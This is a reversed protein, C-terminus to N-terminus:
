FGGSRLAKRIEEWDKVERAGEAETFSFARPRYERASVIVDSSGIIARIALGKEHTDEFIKGEDWLVVPAEPFGNEKLWAKIDKAGTKGSGLFVVPFRRKIEQIGEKCGSRAKRSFPGEFLSEEVDVFVIATGKKLSIILGSGQETGSKAAIRYIGTKPPIFQKFAFGDGGSLVNGEPKGDVSVMVVEGGKSFFKGRTEIRITIKKGQTAILDHVVVESSAGAPSIFLLLVAAIFLWSSKM